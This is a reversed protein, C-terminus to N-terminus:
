IRPQEPGFQRAGRSDNRQQCFGQCRERHQLGTFMPQCIWDAPAPAVTLNCAEIELAQAHQNPKRLPFLVLPSLSVFFLFFFCYVSVLGVWVLYDDARLNAFGNAKIRAYTRLITTLAGITFLTWLEITFRHFGEAAAAAAAAQAAAAAPDTANAASSM